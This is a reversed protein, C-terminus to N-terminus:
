LVVEELYRSLADKWHPMEFGIDRKLKENSLASFSPRKAKMPLESSSIAEIVVNYGGLRVIEKAFEYWTCYGSNVVHYIGVRGKGILKVIAKSADKAYTPSMVIDNVVRLDEGSSAKRLITRVFNGGKLKSGGKGFLSAVRVILYSHAHNRLLIEGAYKSLGYVNLPNPIDEESYPSSKAGDFVYDTSIYVLLSNLENSIEVLNKLAITNVEFTKLPNEECLDVKHYAATNIIVSPSLSLLVEQTGEHDTIEIDEHSLPIAREGLESLLESGLQGTSGIIAIKAM